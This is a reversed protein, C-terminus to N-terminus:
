AQSQCSDWACSYVTWSLSSDVGASSVRLFDKGPGLTGPILCSHDQTKPICNLLLTSDRLSCREQPRLRRGQSSPRLQIPTHMRKEPHQNRTKWVPYHMQWRMSKRLQKERYTDWYASIHGELPSAACPSPTIIRIRIQPSSYLM